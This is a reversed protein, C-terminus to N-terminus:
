LHNAIQGALSVALKVNVGLLREHLCSNLGKTLLHGVVVVLVVLADDQVAVLAVELSHSLDNGVFDFAGFLHSVVEAKFQDSAGVHSFLSFQGGLNTQLGWHALVELVGVGAVVLAQRRGDASGSGLAQHKNGAVVLVADVDGLFHYHVVLKLVM